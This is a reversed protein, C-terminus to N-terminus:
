CRNHFSGEAQACDHYFYELTIYKDAKVGPGKPLKFYIPNKADIKWDHKYDRMHTHVMMGTWLRCVSVLWISVWTHKYPKGSLNNTGDKM